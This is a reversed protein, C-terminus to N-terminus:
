DNLTEDALGEWQETIAKSIYKNREARNLESIADAINDSVSKVVLEGNVFIKTIIEVETNEIFEKYDM